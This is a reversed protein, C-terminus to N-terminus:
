NTLIKINLINYKRFFFYLFVGLYIMIKCRHVVFRSTWYNRLYLTHCISVPLWPYNKTSQGRGLRVLIRSFDSNKFIFFIAPSIMMKCMHVLFWDYLTLNRLYLTLRVSNYNQFFLVVMQHYCWKVYTCWFDCNYSTHQRLCQTRCIFNKTM